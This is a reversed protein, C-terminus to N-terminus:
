FPKAFLKTSRLDECFVYLVVPRSVYPPTLSIQQNVAFKDTFNIGM